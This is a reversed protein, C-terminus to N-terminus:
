ALNMNLNRVLRKLEALAPDQLLTALGLYVCIASAIAAATVILGPPWWHLIAWAPLAAAASLLLTVRQDWIQAAIGYHLLKRSYWTNAVLSCLSAGLVAAAISVPGHFSAPIMLTMVSVNKFVELRFFLHSKGQANLASLNLVHLPWLAGALSLLTLVSAADTWRPGYLLALLPRAAIAMGILCPFFVFMSVQLSRRLANRLRGPDNALTSFVPLTVRGLVSAIFSTSAEQTNQAVTYLGLANADFMRGILLSQMRTAIVNQLGAFLTYSGFGFLTRFSAYRFKGRPRWGSFRWLLMSRLGSSTLGLWILSWVGYGLLAVCVALIGSVLSAAMQAQTRAKFDLRRTLLADPVSGIATLPLMLSMARAMASLEPQRYFV